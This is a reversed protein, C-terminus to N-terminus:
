HEGLLLQKVPSLHKLAISFPASAIDVPCSVIRLIRGSTLRSIHGVQQWHGAPGCPECVQSM